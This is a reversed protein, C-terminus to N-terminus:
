YLLSDIKDNRNKEVGCSKCIVVKDVKQNFLKEFLNKKPEIIVSENLIAQGGCKSCKVWPTYSSSGTIMGGGGGEYMIDYQFRSM